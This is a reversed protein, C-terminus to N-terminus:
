RIIISGSLNIVTGRPQHKIYQMQSYQCRREAIAVSVQSFCKHSHNLNGTGYTGEFLHRQLHHYTGKSVMQEARLVEGACEGRGESPHFRLALVGRGEGAAAPAADCRWGKASRTKERRSVGAPM